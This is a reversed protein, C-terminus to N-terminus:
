EILLSSSTHAKHKSYTQKFSQLQQLGQSTTFRRRERSTPWDMFPTDIRHHTHCSRFLALWWSFFHFIGDLFVGSPQHTETESSYFFRLLLINTPFRRRSVYHFNIYIPCKVILQFHSTPHLMAWSEAHWETKNSSSHNVHDSTCEPCMM